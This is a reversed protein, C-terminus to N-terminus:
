PASGAEGREELYGRIAAYSTLRLQDAVAISLGFESEIAVMLMAHALSDWTEVGVQEVGTVDVGPPLALAERVIEQLKTEVRTTM